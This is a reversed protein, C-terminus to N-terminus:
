VDLDTEDEWRQDEIWISGQIEKAKKKLEAAVEGIELHNHFTRRENSVVAISITMLPYEETDGHRNKVEIFGRNRDCSNYLNKIERDFLSIIALCLQTAIDPHTLIIFDDGGIHGLFDEEGYGVNALSSQLVQATVKLAKDGREFGYKDNFAKFNDLDLYLIAFRREEALAGKMQDEIILNGPLGTLPNSNHACRIQLRTISNLLKMISININILGVNSIGTDEGSITIPQGLYHEQEAGSLRLYLQTIM